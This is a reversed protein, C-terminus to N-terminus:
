VAVEKLEKKMSRKVKVFYKMMEEYHEVGKFQKIVERAQKESIDGNGFMDVLSIVINIQNSSM